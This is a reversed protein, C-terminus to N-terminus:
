ASPVPPPIPDLANLKDIIVHNSAVLGDLDAETVSGGAAIVDKLKQIEANQAENDEVVRAIAADMAKIAAAQSAQVESLKAMQIELQHIRNSILKEFTNLFLNIMTLLFGETVATKEGAGNEHHMEMDKGELM